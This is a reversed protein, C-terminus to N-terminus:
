KQAPAIGFLQRLEEKEEDSRKTKNKFEILDKNEKYFEIEWKEKKKGKARNSRYTIVTGLLSEGVEMFYSFFTWWHMYQVARVEMHTVKNVAPIIIGADQEWDILKPHPKGNEKQGCDIFECAKQAAEEISESPIKTYDEYLIMLMIITKAEEPVEPDNCATLINLVDRYDTRIAFDVGGINLSTPLSYANM